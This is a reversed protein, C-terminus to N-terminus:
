GAGGVSASAANWQVIDEPNSYAKWVLDIRARVTTEVAIKM